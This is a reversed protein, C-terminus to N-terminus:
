PLPLEMEVTLEPQEAWHADGRAEQAAARVLALGGAARIHETPQVGNNTYHFLVTHRQRNQSIAVRLVTAGGHQRANLLCEMGGVLFAKQIHENAPVEGEFLVQM